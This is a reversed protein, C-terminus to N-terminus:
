IGGTCPSGPDFDICAAIGNAMSGIAGSFVVAVVAIAAAILGGLM